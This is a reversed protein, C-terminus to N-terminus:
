SLDKAEEFYTRCLTRDLAEENLNRYTRIEKHDIYQNGAQHV